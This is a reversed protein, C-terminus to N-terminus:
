YTEGRMYNQLQQIMAKQDEITNKVVDGISVMGILYGNEMVPLHRVHNDTMLEMCREMSDSPTVNIPNPTMVDRVPTTRSSKELLAIKRAYDRESVIGVPKGDELVMLAGIKNDNMLSLAEMVMASANVCYTTADPKSNLLDRVNKM